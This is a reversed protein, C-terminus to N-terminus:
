RGVVVWAPADVHKIYAARLERELSRSAVFLYCAYWTAIFTYFLVVSGLVVYSDRYGNALLGAFVRDSSRYIAWLGCGRPAYSAITPTVAWAFTIWRFPNMRAPALVYLARCDICRWPADPNLTERRIREICARHVSAATGKCDCPCFFDLPDGEHLCVRCPDM